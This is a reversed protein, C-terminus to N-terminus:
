TEWQILEQNFDPCELFPGRNVAKVMFSRCVNVSALYLDSWEIHTIYFTIHETQTDNLEVTAKVYPTNEYNAVLGKCPKSCITWSALGTLDEQWTKVNGTISIIHLTSGAIFVLQLKQVFGKSWKPHVYRSVCLVVFAERIDTMFALEDQFDQPLEKYLYQPISVQGNEIKLQKIM